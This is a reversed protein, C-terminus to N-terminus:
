RDDGSGGLTGRTARGALKAINDALVRDLSTGLYDCLTALAVLIEPLSCIFPGKGDRMWRQETGCLGDQAEVLAWLCADIDPYRMPDSEPLPGIELASRDRAWMAVSWAIDGLESKLAEATFGASVAMRLEAVESAYLMAPYIGAYHRPYIATRVAAEAYAAFTIIAATESM